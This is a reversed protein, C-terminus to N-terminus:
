ALEGKYRVLGSGGHGGGRAGSANGWMTHQGTGGAGVTIELHDTSDFGAPDSTTTITTTTM